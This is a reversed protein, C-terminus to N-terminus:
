EGSAAAELAAIRDEYDTLIAQLGTVDSIEIPLTTGGGGGGTFPSGDENFLATQKVRVNPDLTAQDVIVTQTTRAM